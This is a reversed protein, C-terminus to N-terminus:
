LNLLGFVCHGTTAQSTAYRLWICEKDGNNLGHGGYYIILLTDDQDNDLFSLLERNLKQQPRKSAIKYKRVCFNFKKFESALTDLQNEFEHQTTDEWCILLVNVIKYPISLDRTDM